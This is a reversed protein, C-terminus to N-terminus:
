FALREGYVAAVQEAERAAAPLRALPLRRRDFAPDGVAVVKWDKRRPSTLSGASHERAAALSTQFSIARREILRAGTEPERLAAFPVRQLIGDPVVVLPRGPPVGELADALLAEYLRALAEPRTTGSAASDVVAKALVEIHPAEWGWRVQAGDVRWWVFNRPTMGLVVIVPGQGTPNGSGANTLSLGAVSVEEGTNAAANRRAAELLELARLPENAAVAADIADDFIDQVSDLHRIGFEDAPIDTQLLKILEIAGDLTHRAAVSDRAQRESTAKM